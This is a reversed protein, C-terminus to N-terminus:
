KRHFLRAFFGRKKQHIFGGPGGALSMAARTVEASSVDTNVSLVDESKKSPDPINIVKGCVPCKGKKGAAEAKVKISKGCQLCKVEIPAAM